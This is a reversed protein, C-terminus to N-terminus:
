ALAVASPHVDPIYGARMAKVTSPPTLVRVEQGQPRRRRGGYGGPSWALLYDGRVVYARTGWSPGAVFVGDPLGDLAAPFLRKSHDPAVREAHLRDDIGQATPMASRGGNPHAVRWNTCFDLFHSHRCEACPR